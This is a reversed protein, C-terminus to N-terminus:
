EGPRRRRVAPVSSLLLLGTSGGRVRAAASSARTGPRSDTTGPISIATTLWGANSHSGCASRPSPSGRRPRDRPRFAALRRDDAVLRRHPVLDRQGADIRHGQQAQPVVARGFPWVGSLAIRLSAVRVPDFIFCLLAAFAYGIFLWLGALVFWVINGLLRV